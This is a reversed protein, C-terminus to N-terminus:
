DYEVINYKEIDSVVKKYFESEHNASLMCDIDIAFREQIENTNSKILVSFLSSSLAVCGGMDFSNNEESKKELWDLDFIGTHEKKSLVKRGNLEYVVLKQPTYSWVYAHTGYDGRLLFVNGNKKYVKYAFKERKGKKLITKNCSLSFLM